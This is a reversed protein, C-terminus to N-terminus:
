ILVDKLFTVSYVIWFREGFIKMRGYELIRQQAESYCGRKLCARPAMGMSTAYSLLCLGGIMIKKM